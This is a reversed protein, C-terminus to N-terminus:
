RVEYRTLTGNGNAAAAAHRNASVVSSKQAHTKHSRLSVNDQIGPNYQYKYAMECRPPGSSLLRRSVEEEDLVGCKDTQVSM